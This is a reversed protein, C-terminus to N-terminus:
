ILLAVELLLRIIGFDLDWHYAVSAVSHTVLGLVEVSLVETVAGDHALHNM